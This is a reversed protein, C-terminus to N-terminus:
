ASPSALTPLPLLQDFRVDILDQARHVTDDLYSRHRLM